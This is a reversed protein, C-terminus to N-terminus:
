LAFPEVTLTWDGDCRVDLFYTGALFTHIQQGPFILDIPGREDFLQITGTTSCTMTVIYRGDLLVVPKSVVSEDSGSLAYYPPVPLGIARGVPSSAGDLAAERTQLDAVRTQYAQVPEYQATTSQRWRIAGSAVLVVLVFFAASLVKTRM